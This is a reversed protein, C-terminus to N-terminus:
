QDDGLLEAKVEEWSQGEDPDAKDEAIRMELDAQQAPTLPLEEEPISQLLLRVLELKEASTMRDFEPPLQSM